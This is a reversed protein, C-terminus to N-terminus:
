LLGEWTKLMSVANDLVDRAILSRLHLSFENLRDDLLREISPLSKAEQSETYYDSIYKDIAKSIVGNLTENNENKIQLM